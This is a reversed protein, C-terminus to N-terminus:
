PISQHVEMFRQAFGSLMKNILDTPTPVKVNLALAMTFALSIAMFVCYVWVDKKWKDARLEPLQFLVSLAYVLILFIMAM